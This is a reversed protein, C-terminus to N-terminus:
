TASLESFIIKRELTRQDEFLIKVSYLILKQLTVPLFYLILRENYCVLLRKKRTILNFKPLLLRELQEFSEVFKRNM